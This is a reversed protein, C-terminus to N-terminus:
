NRICNLERLSPRLCLNLYTTILSLALPHLYKDLIIARAKVHLVYILQKANELTQMKRLFELAGPDSQRCNLADHAPVAPCTPRLARDIV